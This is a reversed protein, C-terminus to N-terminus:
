GAKGGGGPPPVVNPAFAKQFLEMRPPSFIDLLLVADDVTRWFHREMPRIRYGDGPGLLTRTGEAPLYLEIRGEFVHGVQEAEHTEEPWELRPGLHYLVMMMRDALVVKRRVGAKVEEWPMSDWRIPGSM